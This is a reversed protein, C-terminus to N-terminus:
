IFSVCFQIIPKDITKPLLGEETDRSWLWAITNISVTQFSCWIDIICSWLIGFDLNSIHLEMWYDKIYNTRNLAIIIVIFVVYFMCLIM